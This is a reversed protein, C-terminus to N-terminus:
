RASIFYSRLTHYYRTGRQEVYGGDLLFERYGADQLLNPFNFKVVTSSTYLVRMDRDRALKDILGGAMQESVNIILRGNQALLNSHLAADILDTGMCWQEELSFSRNGRPLYPPNCVVLDFRTPEIQDIPQGTVKIRVDQNQFPSKISFDFDIGDRPIAIHTSSHHSESLNTAACVAAHTNADVGEMVELNPLLFPLTKMIMGSGVGIELASGYEAQRGEQLLFRELSDLIFITDVTPRIVGPFIKPSTIIKVGNRVNLLVSEEFVSRLEIHQDLHSPITHNRYQYSKESTMRRLLRPDCLTPNGFYAGEYVSISRSSIIRSFQVHRMLLDFDLAEQDVLGQFDM